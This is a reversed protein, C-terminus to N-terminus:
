STGPFQCCWQKKWQSTRYIMTFWPQNLWCATMLVQTENWVPCKAYSAGQSYTSLCLGVGRDFDMILANTELARSDPVPSVFLPQHCNHRTTLMDMPRCCKRWLRQSQPFSKVRNPCVILWYVSNGEHTNPCSQFKSTRWFCFDKSPWFRPSREKQM